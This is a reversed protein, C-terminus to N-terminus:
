HYILIFDSLLPKSHGALSFITSAKNLMISTSFLYRSENDGLEIERMGTERKEKAM